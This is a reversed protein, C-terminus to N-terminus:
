PPGYFAPALQAILHNPLGRPVQRPRGRWARNGFCSESKVLVTM